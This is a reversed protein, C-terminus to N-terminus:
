WSIVRRTLWTTAKVKSIEDLLQIALIGGDVIIVHQDKFEDAFEYDNTYLQRGNFRDKGPDDPLHPSELTGTANIIGRAPFHPGDTEVKLRDGRNCVAMVKLPRYVPLDFERENTKFYKPVAINVQVNEGETNVAEAFHLGPLDHIGNVTSLTLSPWRYQWAGGPDESQGLVVFGSGQELGLGLRRLHYAPSLEAQSAGIVAIDTKYM